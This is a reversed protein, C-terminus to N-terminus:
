NRHMLLAIKQFSYEHNKLYLVVVEFITMEGKFVDFPIKKDSSVDLPEPMVRKAKRYMVGVPGPNRKIVGSIEKYNLGLNERLYKVIAELASLKDNFISVPIGKEEGVLYHKEQLFRLFEGFLVQVQEKPIEKPLGKVSSLDSEFVSGVVEKKNM